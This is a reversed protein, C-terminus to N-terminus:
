IQDTAIRRIAGYDNLLILRQWGCGLRTAAPGCGLGHCGVLFTNGDALKKCLVTMKESEIIRALGQKGCDLFSDVIREVCAFFRPESRFNPNMDFRRTFFSKLNRDLVVTWPDDFFLYGQDKALQKVARFKM